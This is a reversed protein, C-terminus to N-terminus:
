ARVSRIISEFATNNYPTLKTQHFNRGLIELTKM